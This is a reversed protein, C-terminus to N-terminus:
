TQRPSAPNHQHGHSAFVATAIMIKRKMTNRNVKKFESRLLNPTGLQQIADDFTKQVVPGGALQERLHSELEDLPVPASIGSSLMRRRWESIATELDFM